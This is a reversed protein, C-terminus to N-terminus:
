RSPWILAKGSPLEKQAELQAIYTEQEEKNNQDTLEAMYDALLSRFKDDRFAADFQRAEEASLTVDEDSHTVPRAM